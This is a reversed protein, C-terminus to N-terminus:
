IYILSLMSCALLGNGIESKLVCLFRSITQFLVSVCLLHEKMDWLIVPFQLNSYFLCASGNAKAMHHHSVFRLWPSRKFVWSYHPLPHIQICPSHCYDRNPKCLRDALCNDHQWQLLSPDQTTVADGEEPLIDSSTTLVCRMCMWYSGLEFQILCLSLVAVVQESSSRPKAGFVVLCADIEFRLLCHLVYASNYIINCVCCSIAGDFFFFSLFLLLYVLLLMDHVQLRDGVRILREHMEM